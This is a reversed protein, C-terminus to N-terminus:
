ALVMRENTKNIKPLFLEPLMHYLKSDEVMELLRDTLPNTEEFLRYENTERNYRNVRKYLYNGITGHEADFGTFEVIEKIGRIVGKEEEETVSLHVGIPLFEILERAILEDSMNSYSNGQRIMSMLRSPINMAGKAHLTTILSHNTKVADLMDAAEAGRTESVILWDPLNRLGSKVLDRQTVKKEREDSLLVQTSKINKQPYLAKIHSDRTDEILYIQQRDDIYKVLLKQLETKGSGTAGSIIINCRAQILIGLLQEVSSCLVEDQSMLSEAISNVALRPRSVRLSFTMGDPSVAEHQANVRLFGIETDLIPNSVTFEKGQIDSIQKVLNRVAEIPPHQHEELNISGKRNHKISLKVGDFNIDTVGDDQLYQNLFSKELIENTRKEM